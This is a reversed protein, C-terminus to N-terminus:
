HLHCRHTYSTTRNKCRNGAKTTGTCQVSGRNSNSYTNHYSKSNNKTSVLPFGIGMNVGGKTNYGLSLTTKNSLIYEVSLNINLETKNLSSYTTNDHARVSGSHAVTFIGSPQAIVGWEDYYKSVYYTHQWFRYDTYGNQSLKRIGAGIRYNLNKGNNIVLGVNYIEFSTTVEGDWTEVTNVCKGTELLSNGWESSTFYKSPPYQTYYSGDKTYWSVTSTFTGKCDFTTRTNSGIM